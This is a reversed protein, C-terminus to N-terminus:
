FELKRISRALFMYVSHAAAKAATDEIKITILEDVVVVFVAGNVKINSLQPAWRLVAIKLNDIWNFPNSIIQWYYM